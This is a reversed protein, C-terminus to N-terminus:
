VTVIFYSAQMVWLAVSDSLLILLCVKMHPIVKDKGSYWLYIDQHKVTVWVWCDCPAKLGHSMFWSDCYLKLTDGYRKLALGIHFQLLSSKIISEKNWIILWWCIDINHLISDCLHAQLWADISEQTWAEICSLHVGSWHLWCVPWDGHAGQTKGSAPLKAYSLVWVKRCVKLWM